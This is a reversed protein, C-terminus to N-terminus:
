HRSLGLHYVQQLQPQPRESVFAIAPTYSRITVLKSYYAASPIRYLPVHCHSFRGAAFLPGSRLATPIMERYQLLARVPCTSTNTASISLTQGKRFPDTKSQRLRISVTNSSLTIDSWQLTASDSTSSTFESVRLFGYFATTFAAWLLRQEVPSFNSIRIQQKLTQLLDITVPLRRLSTSDGQLRRIGRVVLRLPESSTPDSYGLELHALRIGALYVKISKYSVHQALHTCFFQLTLSSAPYPTINFQSCFQLYSNIGSTYTQRTSPAVGLYIFQRLSTSLFSDAM